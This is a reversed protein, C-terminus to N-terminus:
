NKARETMVSIFRLLENKSYRNKRGIKTPHLLGKDRYHKLTKEPHQPGDAELRLFTIAEEETLLEPVPSGDPMFCTTSCTTNNDNCM